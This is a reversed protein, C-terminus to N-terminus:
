TELLEYGDIEELKKKKMQNSNVNIAKISVRIGSIEQNIETADKLSESKGTLFAVKIELRLLENYLRLSAPLSTSAKRLGNRRSTTDRPKTGYGMQALLPLNSLTTEDLDFVLKRGDHGYGHKAYYPLNSLTTEDIDFVWIDKGDGGLKLNRAYRLALDIIVASDKKDQDDSMYQEVYILSEKPVTEFGVTNNTEM